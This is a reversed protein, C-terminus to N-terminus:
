RRCATTPSSRAARHRGGRRREPRERWDRRPVGALAHRPVPRVRREVQGHLARLDTRGGGAGEAGRAALLEADRRGRGRPHLQGHRARQDVDRRRRRRAGRDLRPLPRQVRREAGPRAPADPRRGQVQGVVRSTSCGSARALEHRRHRRRRAQRRLHGSPKISRGGVSTAGRVRIYPDVPQLLVRVAGADVADLAEHGQLLAGPDGDYKAGELAYGYAGYQSMGIGHGFGAGRFVHRVAAGATSPVAACLLLATLALASRRM